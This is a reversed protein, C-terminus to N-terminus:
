AGERIRNTYTKAAERLPAIVALELFVGFLVVISAWAFLRPIELMRYAWFIRAGVGSGSGLFEAVATVKWSAAAGYSLGALVYPVLGPLVIRALIRPRPVRYLRAMDFLRKDLTMRGQAINAFLPPFVTAFVVAVPVITGTGAWVMLLSIWLVPPCSQLAAVLPALLRMTLPSSGAAVGLVLACVLSAALGVLGRFITISVTTWCAPEGMLTMLERGVQPPSPMLTTGFALSCAGWVAMVLGFSVALPLYKM